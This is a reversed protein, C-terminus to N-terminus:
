SGSYKVEFGTISLWFTYVRVRFSLATSEDSILIEIIPVIKSTSSNTFSLITTLIPCSFTLIATLISDLVSLTEPFISSICFVLSTLSSLSFISSICFEVSTVSSTNPIDSISSHSSIVFLEISNSAIFTKSAVLFNVSSYLLM